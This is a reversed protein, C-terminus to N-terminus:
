RGMPPASRRMPPSSAQSGEPDNPTRSVKAQAKPDAAWAMGAQGGRTERKGIGQPGGEHGRTSKQLELEWRVLNKYMTMWEEYNLNNNLDMSIKRFDQQYGMSSKENRLKRNELNRKLSLLIQNLSRFLM